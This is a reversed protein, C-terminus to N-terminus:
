KTQQFFKSIQFYVLLISYYIIINIKLNQFLYKKKFKKTNINSILINIDNLLKKNTISKNNEDIFMVFEDDYLIKLLKKKPNIM